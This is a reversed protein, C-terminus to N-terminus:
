QKCHQWTHPLLLSAICIVKFLSNLVFYHFWSNNPSVSIIKVKPKRPVSSRALHCDCRGSYTDSTSWWLTSFHPIIPFLEMKDSNRHWIVASCETRIFFSQSTSTCDHCATNLRGRHGSYPQLNGYRSSNIQDANKHTNEIIQLVDMCISSMTLLMVQSEEWNQANKEQWGKEQFPTLVFISSATHLLSVLILIMNKYRPLVEEYFEHALDGDEDFYM